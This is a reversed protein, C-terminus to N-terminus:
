RIGSIVANLEQRTMGTAIVGYQGCPQDVPHERWIVIMTDPAGQFVTAYHGRITVRQGSDTGGIEGEVGSLLSLERGGPDALTVRIGFPAGGADVIVRDRIALGPPVFSATLEPCIQESSVAMGTADTDAVPSASSRSAPPSGATPPPLGCAAIAVAM